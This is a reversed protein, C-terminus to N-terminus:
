RMGFYGGAPDMFLAIRPPFRTFLVFALILAALAALSLIQFRRGGCRPRSLLVRTRRLAAAAGLFFLLIDAWLFSRGIVGAYTYFAAVIFAMGCVMGCTKAFLFTATERGGAAYEAAAFLLAPFFLIKLHEWVSENVPSIWGAAGCGTWEYLFHNLCGAACVFLFGANEWAALRFAPKGNLGSKEM